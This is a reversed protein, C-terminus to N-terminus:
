CLSHYFILVYKELVVRILLILFAIPVAYWLDSFNRYNVEDESGVYNTLDAWTVNPPLWVSDKLFLELYESM